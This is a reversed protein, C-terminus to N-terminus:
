HSQLESTHEESRGLNSMPVGFLTGGLHSMNHPTGNWWLTASANGFNDNVAATITPSDDNTYANDKRASGTFSVEPASNDTYSTFAHPGAGSGYGLVDDRIKVLNGIPNYEYTLSRFLM